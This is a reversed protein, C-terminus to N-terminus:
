LSHCIIVLVAGTAASAPSPEVSVAAPGAASAPSEDVLGSSSPASTAVGSDPVAEGNDQGREGPEASSDRKGPARVFQQRPTEEAAAEVPGNSM